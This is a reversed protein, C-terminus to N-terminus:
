SGWLRGRGELPLTQTKGEATVTLPGASSLLAVFRADFDIQGELVFNRDMLIEYALAQM